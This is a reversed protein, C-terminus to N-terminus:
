KKEVEEVQEPSIEEEDKDILRDISKAEEDRFLKVLEDVLDEHLDIVDDMEITEDVRYLLLCYAMMFSKKQEQAMMANAMEAVETPYDDMVPHACNTPDTMSDVVAQYADQQSIKYKKSVSSALKLVLRLVEDQSNVNAIFAKEGVTLFGKREIEIKGSAESGLTEIRSNLKPAVVFPLKGM